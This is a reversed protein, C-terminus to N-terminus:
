LNLSLSLRKLFSRRFDTESSEMGEENGSGASGGDKGFRSEEM